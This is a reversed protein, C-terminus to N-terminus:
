PTVYSVYYREAAAIMESEPAKTELAAPRQAVARTWAAVRELGNPALLGDHLDLKRFRPLTVSWRQIWPAAICEAVSIRDGLLYIGKQTALLNELDKLASLFAQQRADADDQSTAKLVAYYSTEVTPWLALFRDVLAVAVADDPVLRPSGCPITDIYRAVDLSEVVVDGDHELLPVKASEGPRVTAYLDLLEQPKNSLDVLRHEFDIQRELLAM